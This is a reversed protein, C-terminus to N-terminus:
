VPVVVTNSASERDYKIMENIFVAAVALDYMEETLSDAAVIMVAHLLRYHKDYRCIRGQLM